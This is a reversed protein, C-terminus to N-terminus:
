NPFYKQNFFGVIHNTSAWTESGKDSFTETEEIRSHNSTFSFDFRNWKM